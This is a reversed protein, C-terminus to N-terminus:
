RRLGPRLALALALAGLAALTSWFLVITQTLHGFPYVLVWGLMIALVLPVYVAIAVWAALVPGPARVGRRAALAAAGTVLVISAAGALLWGPREEPVHGPRWGLVALWLLVPLSAVSLRTTRWWTGGRPTVEALSPLPEDFAFGAATACAGLLVPLLAEEAAPWRALLGAAVGVTLCCGLLATWPVARRLYWARM